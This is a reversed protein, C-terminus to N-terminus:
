RGVSLSLGSGLRDLVGNVRYLRNGFRNDFANSLRNYRTNHLRPKVRRDCEHLGQLEVAVVVQVYPGYIGATNVPLAYRGQRIIALYGTVVLLRVVHAAVPEATASAGRLLRASLQFRTTQHVVTGSITNSCSPWCGSVPCHAALKLSSAM